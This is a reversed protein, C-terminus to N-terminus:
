SNSSERKGNKEIEKNRRSAEQRIAKRRAQTRQERMIQIERRRAELEPSLEPEAVEASKGAANKVAQGASTNMSFVILGGVVLGIGLIIEGGWIFMSILPQFLAQFANGLGQGIANGLDGSLSADTATSTSGSPLGTGNPDVGNQLFKRYAGNTYTVWNRLGQGNNKLKVAEKANAMPDFMTVSDVNSSNIQWLGRDITGDTNKNTNTPIGSSEALAIAAMIPASARDGGAQIWLAELQAYTYHQITNPM